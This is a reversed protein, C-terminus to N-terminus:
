RRGSNRMLLWNIIFFALFILALPLAVLVLLLFIAAIFLKFFLGGKTSGFSFRRVYVHPNSRRTQSQDDGESNGSQDITLGQFNEREEPPLVTVQPNEKCDSCLSQGPETYAGCRICSM